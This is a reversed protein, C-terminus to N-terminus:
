AKLIQVSAVGSGVGAESDMCESESCEIIVPPDCGM